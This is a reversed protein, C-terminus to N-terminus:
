QKSSNCSRCASVLNFPDLRAGGNALSQIHDVTADSGFLKKNCYYCIWKDRNLIKLRIKRWESDYGRQTPTARIRKPKSAKNIDFCNICRSGQTPTGCDLCPMKFM